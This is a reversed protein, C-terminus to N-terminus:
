SFTLTLQNINRRVKQRDPKLNFLQRNWQNRGSIGRSAPRDIWTLAALREMQNRAGTPAFRRPYVLLETAGYTPNLSAFGLLNRKGALTTGAIM